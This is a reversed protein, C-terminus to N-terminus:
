NIINNETADASGVFIQEVPKRNIEKFDVIKEAIAEFNPDHTVAVVTMEPRKVRLGKIIELVQKASEEDLNATPEDLFLVRPDKLLARAIGIRRLEGGSYHKVKSDLREVLGDLRLDHLTQRIEIDTTQKKTWLLLNERLTMNEFFQPNQNAYAIKSYISQEGFKKINQLDVGGYQVSGERAGYLGMLHRFFTTKGIGSPGKITVFSGQTIDLSVDHLIDKFSLNKVSIDFNNLGDVAMRAKEKPGDPTDVQDYPGLLEEMRKIDQIAPQIKEAFISAIAEASERQKGSLFLGVLGSTVAQKKKGRVLNELAGVAPIGFEFLQTLISSKFLHKLEADNTQIHFTDRERMIKELEATAESISPSTKVIEISALTTAVRQDIATKHALQARRSTLIDQSLKETSKILFPIRLISAAAMLPSTLFQPLATTCVVSAHPIVEMYTASLLDLVGKKGREIIDLLEAASADHIFEFDRMFISQAIRGNIAERTALLHKEFVFPMFQESISLPLKALAFWVPWGEKKALDVLERPTKPALHAVDTLVDHISFEDMFNGDTLQGIAKMTHKQYVNTNVKDWAKWILVSAGVSAVSDVLKHAVIVSEIAGLSVAHKGMGYIKHVDALVRQYERLDIKTSEVRKVPEPKPPTFMDKVNSAWQKKEEPTLPIGQAKLDKAMADILVDAQNKTNEGLQADAINKSADITEPSFEIPKAAESPSPQPEARQLIQEAM